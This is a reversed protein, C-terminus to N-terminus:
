INVQVAGERLIKWPSVSCDIVTSSKSGLSNEQLVFDVLKVLEPDLDKWKTVSPKGHFNASTGVLPVGVADIIQFTSLLDPIRLGVTDGNGRVLPLVKDKKCPL